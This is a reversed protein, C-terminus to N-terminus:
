AWEACPLRPQELQARHGEPAEPVYKIFILGLVVHRYEAASLNVRLKDAASWLTEEFDMNATFETKAPKAASKAASEGGDILQKRLRSRPM